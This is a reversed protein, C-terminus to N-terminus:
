MLRVEAKSIVKWVGDESAATGEAENVVRTPRGVAESSVKCVPKLMQSVSILATALADPSTLLSFRGQRGATTVLRYLSEGERETPSVASFTGFKDPAALFLVQEKPENRTAERVTATPVEANVAEAQEAMEDAKEELATLRCSLMKIESLLEKKQKELAVIRELLPAIQTEVEKSIQGTLFM